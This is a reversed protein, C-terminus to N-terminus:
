GVRMQNEKIYRELCRRAATRNHATRILDNIAINVNKALKDDDEEFITLFSELGKIYTNWMDRFISEKTATLDTPIRLDIGLIRLAPGLENTIVQHCNLDHPYLKELFFTFKLKSTGSEREQDRLSYCFLEFFDKFIKKEQDMISETPKTM